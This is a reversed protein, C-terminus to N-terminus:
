NLTEHPEISTGRNKRCLMEQWGLVIVKVMGMVEIVKYTHAM